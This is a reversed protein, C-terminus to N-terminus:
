KPTEIEPPDSPIRRAWHLVSTAGTWRDILYASGAGDGRPVPYVGFRGLWAVLALAVFICAILARQFATVTEGKTAFESM